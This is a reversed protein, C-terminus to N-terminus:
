MELLHGSIDFEQSCDDDKGVEFPQADYATTDDIDEVIGENNSNYSKTLSDEDNSINGLTQYTLICELIM